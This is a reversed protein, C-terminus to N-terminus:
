RFAEDGVEGLPWRCGHARLDLLTVGQGPECVFATKRMGEIRARGIEARVELSPVGPKVVPTRSRSHYTDIPNATPGAPTHRKRPNAPLVGFMRKSAGGGASIGLRHMKGFVSNRSIGYVAAVDTSSKGDRFMQQMDMVIDSTWGFFEM